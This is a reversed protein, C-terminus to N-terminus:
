GCRDYGDVFGRTVKRTTQQINAMAEECTTVFTLWIALLSTKRPNM